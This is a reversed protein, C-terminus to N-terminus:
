FEAFFLSFFIQIYSWYTFYIPLNVKKQNRMGNRYLSCISKKREWTLDDGGGCRYVQGM